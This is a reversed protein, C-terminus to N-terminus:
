RINTIHSVARAIARMAHLSKSLMAVVTYCLLYIHSSNDDIIETM